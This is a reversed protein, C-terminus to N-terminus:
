PPWRVGLLFGNVTGLLAQLPPSPWRALPEPRGAAEQAGQDPQCGKTGDPLGSGHPISNHRSLGDWSIVGTEAHGRAEEGHAKAGHYQCHILPMERAWCDSCGLVREWGQNSCASCGLIGHHWSNYSVSCACEALGPLSRHKWCQEAGLLCGWIDRLQM